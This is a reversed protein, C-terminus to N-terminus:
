EPTLLVLVRVTLGNSKLRARLWVLTIPLRPAVAVTVSLPGADAPPATIVRDLELVDRAVTGGLMVIGAPVFIPVNPIVVSVIAEEPEEVMVADFPPTLLVAARVVVGL